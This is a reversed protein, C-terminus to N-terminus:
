KSMVFEERVPVNLREAASRDPTTQITESGTPPMVCRYSM